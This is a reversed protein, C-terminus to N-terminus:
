ALDTSGNVGNVGSIKCEWEVEHDEFTLRDNKSRNFRVIPLVYSPTCVLRNGANAVLDIDIVESVFQTELAAIRDIGDPTMVSQGINLNRAPIVGRPTDIWTNEDFGSYM